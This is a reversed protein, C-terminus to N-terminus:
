VSTRIYPIHHVIILVHMWWMGMGAMSAVCPVAHMCIYMSQVNMWCDAHTPYCRHKASGIHPYLSHLLYHNSCTDAVIRDRSHKRCLSLMCAFIYMTQVNIWCDTHSKHKALSTAPYMSHLSCQNSFADVVNWHYVDSFRIGIGTRLM